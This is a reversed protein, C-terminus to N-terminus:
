RLATQLLIERDQLLGDEISNGDIALLLAAREPNNADSFGHLAFHLIRFEDLPLSKLASETAKKGELLTTGGPFLTGISRIEGSTQTLVDIKKAELTFLSRSAYQKPPKPKQGAPIGGVALLTKRPK